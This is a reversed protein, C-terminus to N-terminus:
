KEIIRENEVDLLEYGALGFLEGRYINPRGKLLPKEQNCNELVSALPGHVLIEAIKRGNPHTLYLIKGSESLELNTTM